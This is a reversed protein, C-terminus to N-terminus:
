FGMTKANREKMTKIPIVKPPINVTIAHCVQM